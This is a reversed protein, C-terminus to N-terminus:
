ILEPLRCVSVLMINHPSIFPVPAGELEANRKRDVPSIGEAGMGTRLQDLGLKTEAYDRPCRYKPQDLWAPPQPISPDTVVALYYQNWARAYESSDESDVFALKLSRELVTVQEYM